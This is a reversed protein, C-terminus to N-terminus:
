AKHLRWFVSARIRLGEWSKLQPGSMRLVGVVLVALKSFCGYWWQKFARDTFM